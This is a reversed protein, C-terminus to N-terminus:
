QSRGRDLTVFQSRKNRPCVGSGQPAEPRGQAQRLTGTGARDIMPRVRGM